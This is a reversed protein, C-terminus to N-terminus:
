KKVTLLDAARVTFLAEETMLDLVTEVDGSKSAAFCTEVLARIAREDETM